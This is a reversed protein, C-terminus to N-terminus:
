KKRMSKTARRKKGRNRDAERGHRRPMNPKRGRERHGTAMEGGTLRTRAFGLWRQAIGTSAASLRVPRRAWKFGLDDDESEDDSIVVRRRRRRGGGGRRANRSIKAKAKELWLEMLATSASNLNVPKFRKANARYIADEEEEESSGSHYTGAYKRKAKEREEQKESALCPICYTHFKQTHRFFLKWAV